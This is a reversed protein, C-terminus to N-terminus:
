HYDWHVVRFAEPGSTAEFYVILESFYNETSYRWATCTRSASWPCIDAKADDPSGLLEIVEASSMGEKLNQSAAKVEQAPRNSHGTVCSAASLAICAALM